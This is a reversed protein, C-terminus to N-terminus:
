SKPLAAAGALVIGLCADFDASYDRDALHPALAALRDLGLGRLQEADPHPGCGGFFGATEMTVFGLCFALITRFVILARAPEYGGEALLGFAAECPRLAAESTFTRTVLLPVANPHRLCTARFSRAMMLAREAWTGASPGPIEIEGLVAEAIGDLLSDKNPVYHYLSMTGAGLAQALARMNLACMGDRDVLDVAAALIACRDLGRRTPVAM